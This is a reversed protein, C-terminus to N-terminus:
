KCLTHHYWRAIGNLHSGKKNETRLQTKVGYIGTPSQDYGNIDFPRMNRHSMYFNQDGGMWYLLYPEMLWNFYAHREGELSKNTWRFTIKNKNEKKYFM